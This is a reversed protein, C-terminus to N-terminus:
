SEGEEAIHEAPAVRVPTDLQDPGEGVHRDDAITVEVPLATDAGFSAGVHQGERDRLSGIVEQGGVTVRTELSIEGGVIGASAEPAGVSNQLALTEADTEESVGVPGPDPTQGPQGLRGLQQIVGDGGRRTRGQLEIARARRDPVDDVDPRGSEREGPFTWGRARDVIRVTLDDLDNRQYARVASAIAQWMCTMRIKRLIQELSRSSSYIRRLSLIVDLTTARPLAHTFCAFVHASRDSQRM